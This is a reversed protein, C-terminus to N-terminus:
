NYVKYDWALGEAFFTKIYGNKLRVSTSTLDCLDSPYVRSEAAPRKWKLVSEMDATDSNQQKAGSLCGAKIAVEGEM